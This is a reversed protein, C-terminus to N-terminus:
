THAVPFGGQHRTLRKKQKIKDVVLGTLQAIGAASGSEAGSQGKWARAISGDNDLGEVSDYFDGMFGSRRLEGDSFIRFGLDKQRQLARMICRDEIERLEHASLSSDNRADLLEQPRLFSGVQAARFRIAM